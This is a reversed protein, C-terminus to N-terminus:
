SLFFGVEIFFSFELCKASMDGVEVELVFVPSCLVIVPEKWDIIFDLVL